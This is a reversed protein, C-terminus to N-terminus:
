RLGPLAVVPSQILMQGSPPLRIHSVRATPACAFVTCLLVDFCWCLLFDDVNCPLIHAERHILNKLCFM